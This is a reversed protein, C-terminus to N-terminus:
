PTTGSISRAAVSRHRRASGASTSRAELDPPMSRTTDGTVTATAGASLTATVGNDAITQDGPPENVSWASGQTDAIVSQLDSSLNDQGAAAYDFTPNTWAQSADDNAYQSSQSTPVLAKYAGYDDNFVQDWSMLRSNADEVDNSSTLNFGFDGAKYDKIILHSSWLFTQNSNPGNLASFDIILDNTGGSQASLSCFLSYSYPSAPSQYTNTTYDSVCFYTPDETGYMGDSYAGLLQLTPSTDAAQPVGTRPDSLRDTPIVLKDNAGGGVITKIGPSVVVTTGNDAQGNVSPLFIVANDGAGTNILDGNSGALIVDNSGDTIIDAKRRSGRIHENPQSGMLLDPPLGTLDSGVPIQNEAKYYSDTNLYSFLSPATPQLVDLGGVSASLIGVIYSASSGQPTVFAAGGSDGNGTAVTAQFQEDGLVGGFTGTNGNGPGASSFGLSNNQNLFKTAEIQDAFAVVPSLTGGSTGALSPASVTAIDYRAPNSPDYRQTGIYNPSTLTIGAVAPIGIDQAYAEYVGGMHLGTFLHAATLFVGGGFAECSGIDRYPALIPLGGPRPSPTSLEGHTNIEYSVVSM